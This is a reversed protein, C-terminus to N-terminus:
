AVSRRQQRDIDIKEDGSVVKWFNSVSRVALFGLSRVSDPTEAEFEDRVKVGLIAEYKAVTRKSHIIYLVKWGMHRGLMYMGLAGELEDLQGTFRHIAADMLDHRRKAEEPSAFPTVPKHKVKSM